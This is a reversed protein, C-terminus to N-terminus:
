MVIYLLLTLLKRVKQMANSDLSVYIIFRKLSVIYLLNASIIVLYVNVRWVIIPM